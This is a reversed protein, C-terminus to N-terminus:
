RRLILKILAKVGFASLTGVFVTGGICVYDKITLGKDQPHTDFYEAISKGVEDSIVERLEKEDITDVVEEVDKKENENM